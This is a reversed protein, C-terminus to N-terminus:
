LKLPALATRVAEPDAENILERVENERERLVLRAERHESARERLEGELELCRARIQGVTMRTFDTM